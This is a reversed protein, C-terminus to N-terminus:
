VLMIVVIIVVLPIIRHFTLHSFHPALRYSLLLSTSMFMSHCPGFASEVAYSQKALSVILIKVVSHFCSVHTAITLKRMNIAVSKMNRKVPADMLLIVQKPEEVPSTSDDVILFPLFYDAM